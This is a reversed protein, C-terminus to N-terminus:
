AAPLELRVRLGGSPSQDLQMTGHYLAVIESVISLGLGSGPKTEDLRKGRKGVETRQQPNLGPGDDDVILRLRRRGTKSAPQEFKVTLMVESQAWKAANDMLNGLMEELDQREGQFKADPPCDLAITLGKDAHIRSLARKLSQAVPAVETLGGIVSVRAAMRARDLYHNVQMRMLEAQEAVKAGFRTQDDRAENTIVSLPTKLAHALNGVQTRAREVIDQNSGILANLEQQLPIIEQPLDGDLRKAQGSRIAALDREIRALPALGFRVQFFTATLLGSGFITLAGILLNRFEAVSIDIEAKPGAVAYSYPFYDEAGGLTVEREVVRLRKNDPGTVDAWALGEKDPKVRKDRPLRLNESLLSESILTPGGQAGIPKIQWYWGTLPQKFLPEVMDQPKQPVPSRDVISEAVLTTVIVRLRQDFDREVQERFLSHIAFGTAPLAFLSWLAASWFLRGALSRPTLTSPLRRLAWQYADVAAAGLGHWAGPVARLPAPLRDPRRDPTM